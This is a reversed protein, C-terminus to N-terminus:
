KKNSLIIMFHKLFGLSLAGATSLSYICKQSFSTDKNKMLETKQESRWDLLGSNYYMEIREHDRM